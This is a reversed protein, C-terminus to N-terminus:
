LRELMSRVAVFFRESIGDCVSMRLISLYIDVLFIIIFPVAM